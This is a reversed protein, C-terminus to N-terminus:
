SAIILNTGKRWMDYLCWTQDLYNCITICDDIVFPDRTCISLVSGVNTTNKFINLYIIITDYMYQWKAVGVIFFKDNNGVWSNWICSSRASNWPPPPPETQPQHEGFQLIQQSRLDSTLRLVSSCFYNKMKYSSALTSLM